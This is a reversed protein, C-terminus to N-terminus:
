NLIHKAKNTALLAYFDNRQSFPTAQKTKFELYNNRFVSGRSELLPHPLEVGRIKDTAYSSMTNSYGDCFQNIEVRLTNKGAQKGSNEISIFWFTLENSFEYRGM